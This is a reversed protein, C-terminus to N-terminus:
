PQSAILLDNLNNNQSLARKVAIFLQSDIAKSHQQVLPLRSIRKALEALKPQHQLFNDLIHPSINAMQALQQVHPAVPAFTTEKPTNLHPPKLNSGTHLTTTTTPAQTIKSPMDLINGAPSAPTMALIPTNLHTPAALASEPTQSPKHSAPSKRQKQTSKVPAPLLVPRLPIPYHYPLPHRVLVPQMAPALNQHQNAQVPAVLVQKYPLWRSTTSSDLRYQNIFSQMSASGEWQAKPIKTTIPIDLKAPTADYDVNLDANNENDNKEEQMEESDSNSDASEYDMSELYAKMLSIGQDTSTLSRVYKITEEGNSTGLLNGLERISPLQDLRKLGLKTRVIDLLDSPYEDVVKPARTNMSAIPTPTTRPNILKYVPINYYLANQLKPSLRSKDTDVIIASDQGYFKPM